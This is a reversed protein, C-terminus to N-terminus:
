QFPGGSADAFNGAVTGTSVVIKKPSCDSCYYGEGEAGPTIALLQAKTRSYFRATGGLYLNGTATFTSKTVGAGFQAAGNVDLLTAPSTTGIGVNGNLLTSTHASGGLVIQNAMATVNAGIAIGNSGTAKSLRGIAISDTIDIASDRIANSGIGIVGSYVRNNAPDNYGAAYGFLINNSSGTLGYGAAYGAIINSGGSTLHFGAVAGLIVNYGGSTLSVGATGVITNGIGTINTSISEGIYASWAQSGKTTLIGATTNWSLNPDGALSGASNFQLQTNSGGALTQWSAVGAANSTLVKGAAQNGDAIKLTTGNGGAVDLRTSPATTGIGVNGGSAVLTSGGVSFANGTVTLAAGSITLPGTMTDGAKAVKTNDIAVVNRLASGDAYIVGTASMSSQIVGSSNRWIQAFDTGSSGASQVDLKTGPSTTGIGVSGGATALGVAATFTKSSTFTNSEVSSLGSLGAGNGFFASATVSSGSSFYATPGTLTIAANGALNLAGTATFTSRSTGSGFSASSSDIYFGGQARVKYEDVISSTFDAAQSDAWVFSGQATAKARNGAAFSNAGSATNGLGGPVASYSGSAMNSSGGGVASHNSNIINSQGGAVVSYNGNASNGIGGAVTAGYAGSTNNNGGAVTAYDGLTTNGYGGGVASYPNNARNNEGGSITAYNGSAVEFAASRSTQLDNAGTGRANGVVAGYGVGESVIGWSHRIQGAVELAAQPNTTGIGVKGGSVVLTSTGVSFANGQVTLTSQVVVNDAPAALAIIAGTKSWGNAGSAGATTQTTGDGFRIFSNPTLNIPGGGAITMGSSLQLAYTAGGPSATFTSKTVGAGFQAAGNVDLLTAPSTTGIGVSGGATALGVDATFTKSSTFTNSEVSSIGSLGAGNGFFASATVSSGSSFYATPGTLTIAANDALNLAGTATFTSKTVGAGFQAAGNVDLLTAPSTTGIGVSGGATALGVAATFTKSSIFTNSEVSSIGSLGAGNGSFFTAYVGGSVNIGSSTLISFGATNTFSGTSATLGYPLDLNGAATFTAIAVGIGLKESNVSRFAYPVAALRERPALTEAGVYTTGANVDVELWTEPTLFVQESLGGATLSGIQVSYLGNTVTIANAGNYTADTALLTGGTAQSYFRFRFSYIGTLPNGSPDGLKGQYNIYGPYAAALAPALLFAWVLSTWLPTLLNKRLATRNRVM